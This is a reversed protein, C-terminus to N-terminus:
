AEEFTIVTSPLITIRMDRVANVGAGAVFVSLQGKFSFKGDEGTPTLDKGEGTGGYWVAYDEEKGELAKLEAYKTKDYNADFQMSELSQIGAISTTMNDSLTTTDLQEPEGGLDPYSKIDVLKEYQGGSSKHMLFTKYSSTAM